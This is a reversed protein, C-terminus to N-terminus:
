SRLAAKFAALAAHDDELRWDQHYFGRNQSQDFWILSFVHDSRIGALLGAIQSERDSTVGVATESIMVPAHSFTRIQAITRGFVSNYSDGAAYYYGDVGVWNVWAAGPWWKRLSGGPGVNTSNVSWVWTANSVGDDRFLQVIHRWAAIFDHPSTRGAGWAYWNGNMEHAFSLIVPHGYTRVEGAFSNLYKDSDGAAISALTVGTPQIQDFVYAGHSQATQAFTTNFGSLWNSYYLAIRPAVGTVSGFEAMGSWSRPNNGEYAGILMGSTTSVSTAVPHPVTPLRTSMASPKWALPTACGSLLACGSVLALLVVVLKRM